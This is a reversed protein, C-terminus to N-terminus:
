ETRSHLCLECQEVTFIYNVRNLQTSMIGVTRIYLCLESKEGTYDYNM